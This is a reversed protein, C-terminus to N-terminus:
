VDDCYRSRLRVSPWTLPDRPDVFHASRQCPSPPALMAAIDRGERAATDREDALDGLVCLRAEELEEPTPQSNRCRRIM